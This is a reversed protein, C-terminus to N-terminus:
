ALLYPEWFSRDYRAWAHAGFPLQGGTLEFCERPAVEWAFRLGEEVSAVRFGRDARSADFSWFGDSNAGRRYRVTGPARPGIARWSRDPGGLLYRKSELVRLFAPIRRLSFGGNGVAARELWPAGVYDYACACFELLRDSLVLADLQVILIHEFAAFARYFRARLQLTAFAGASTFFRDPFRIVEFGELTEELCEPAVVFRDYGGLHRRVHRVCIAEDATLEPKYQPVVVAVSV